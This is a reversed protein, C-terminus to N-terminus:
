EEDEPSRFTEKIISMAEETAELRGRFKEKDSFSAAQICSVTNDSYYENLIKLLKDEVLNM